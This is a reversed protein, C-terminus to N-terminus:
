LILRNQDFITDKDCGQEEVLIYAQDGVTIDTWSEELLTMIYGSGSRSGVPLTMVSRSGSISLYFTNSKPPDPDREQLKIV